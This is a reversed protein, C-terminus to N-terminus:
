YTFKDSYWFGDGLLDQTASETFKGTFLHEGPAPDNDDPELTLVYETCDDEIIGAFNNREFNGDRETAGTSIAAGGCVLWGEYFFGEDPADMFFTASVRRDQDEANDLYFGEGEWSADTSVNTMTIDYQTGTFTEEPVETGDSPSQVVSPDDNTDDSIIETGNVTVSGVEATCGAGALLFLAGLLFLPKKM